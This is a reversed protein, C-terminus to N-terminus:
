SLGHQAKFEAVAGPDFKSLEALAFDRVAPNSTHSAVGLLWTREASKGQGEKFDTWEGQFDTLEQMSDDQFVLQQQPIQASALAADINAQQVKQEVDMGFQAQAIGSGLAAQQAAAGRAGGSLAQGTGQQAALARAAQAQIMTNGQRQGARLAGPVGEAATVVNGFADLVGQQLAARQDWPQPTPAGAAAQRVAGTADQVNIGAM